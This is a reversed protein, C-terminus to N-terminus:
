ANKQSKLTSHSGVLIYGTGFNAKLVQINCHGEIKYLHLGIHNSGILLEVEGSPGIYVKELEQQIKESFLGKIGDASIVQISGIKPVAFAQITHKENNIDM